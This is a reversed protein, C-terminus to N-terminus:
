AASRAAGRGSRAGSVAAGSLAAAPRAGRAWPATVRICCFRVVAPQKSCLPALMSSHRPMGLISRIPCRGAASLDIGPQSLRVPQRHVAHQADPLGIRAAFHAFDTASRSRRPRSFGPVPARSSTPACARRSRSPRSNCSWARHDRTSGVFERGGGALLAADRAGRGAARRAARLQRHGTGRGIGRVQSGINALAAEFRPCATSFADPLRSWDHRRQARGSVTAGCIRWRAAGRGIRSRGPHRPRAIQDRRGANRGDRRSDTIASSALVLKPRLVPRRYRSGSAGRGSHRGRRGAASDGFGEDKLALDALLLHHNVVM